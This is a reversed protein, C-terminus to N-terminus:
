GGATPAIGTARTRRADVRATKGSGKPRGRGRRPEVPPPITANGEPGEPPSQAEITHVHNPSQNTSATRDPLPEGPGDAIIYERHTPDFSLVRRPKGDVEVFLIYGRKLMDMVCREARASEIPNDTDFTLTLDGDTTNLVSVSGPKREDIAIM